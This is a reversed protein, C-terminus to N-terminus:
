ADPEALAFAVPRGRLTTYKLNLVSASDQERVEVFAHTDRIEIAGITRGPIGCENAIAGVIDGPRLGADRGAGIHLRVMQENGGRAEFRQESGNGTRIERKPRNTAPPPPTTVPISVKQPQFLSLTARAIALPDYEQALQEILEQHADVPTVEPQALLERLNNELRKRQAAQVDKPTPASVLSIPQGFAKEYLRLQRREIPELLTIAVGQRGARGTRGVRHVYTQASPPADYNVVHTIQEIDL